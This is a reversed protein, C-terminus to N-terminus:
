DNSLVRMHRGILCAPEPMKVSRRPPSWAFGGIARRFTMRDPARRLAIQRGVIERRRTNAVMEADIGRM